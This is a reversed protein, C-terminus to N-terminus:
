RLLLLQLQLLLLLLQLLQLLLVTALAPHVDTRVWRLRSLLSARQQYYYMLYYLPPKFYHLAEELDKSRGAVTKLQKESEALGRAQHGHWCPEVSAANGKHLQLTM